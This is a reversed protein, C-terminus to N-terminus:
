DLRQPGTGGQDSATRLRPFELAIRQIDDRLEVYADSIPPGNVFRYFGARSVDGLGCMQAVTMATETRVQEEISQYIATKWDVGAVDAAGRHAALLGKFFRDGADAPRDQAGTESRRRM